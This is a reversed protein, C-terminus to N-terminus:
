LEDETQYRSLINDVFSNDRMDLAVPTDFKSLPLDFVAGLMCYHM